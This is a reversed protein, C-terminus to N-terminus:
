LLRECEEAAAVLAHVADGVSATGWRRALLWLAALTNIYTRSAVTAEGSGAVIPLVAAARQGLPSEPENTVALLTIDAPLGGALPVVEASAGSQSVFVLQGGSDVSSRNYFLLDTAEVASAPLGLRRLHFAAVLAAHFSAGMGTLLAAPPRDLSGLLAAGAGESYFAALRRLARPQEFIDRYFPNMSCNRHTSSIYVLM